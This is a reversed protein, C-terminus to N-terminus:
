PVSVTHFVRLGNRAVYAAARRARSLPHPRPANAFADSLTFRARPQADRRLYPPSVEGGLGRESGRSPSVRGSHPRPRPRASPPAAPAAPTASFGQTAGFRWKSPGGRSDGQHRVWKLNTVSRVNSTQPSFPGRSDGWKEHLFGIRALWRVDTRFAASNASFRGRLLRSNAAFTAKITM